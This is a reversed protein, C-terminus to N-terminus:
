RRIQPHRSPNALARGLRAVPGSRNSARVSRGLSPNAARQGPNGPRRATRRNRWGGPGVSPLRPDHQRFRSPPPSIGAAGDAQWGCGAQRCTTARRTPLPRARRGDRDAVATCPGSRVRRTVAHAGEVPAPTPHLQRCRPGRDAFTRLRELSRRWAGATSLDAVSRCGLRAQGCEAERSNRIAPRDRDVRIHQASLATRVARLGHANVPERHQSAM